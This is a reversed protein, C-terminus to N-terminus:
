DLLYSIGVPIWYGSPITTLANNKYSRIIALYGDKSIEFIATNGYGFVLPTFFTETPRYEEPIKIIKHRTERDKFELNDLTKVEGLINVVKGNKKIRMERANLHYNTFNECFEPYITTTDEILNNSIKFLKTVNKIEIGDVEVRYLPYIYGMNPSTKIDWLERKEGTYIDTTWGPLKPEAPSDVTQEGKIVTLSDRDYGSIADINHRICILDIRKYGVSASDIHVTETTGHEITVCHGQSLVAVGDGITINNNEGVTAEFETGVRLVCSRKGIIGAYIDRQQEVTVHPYGLYGTISKM